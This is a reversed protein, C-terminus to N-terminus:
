FCNLWRGTILDLHASVVEAEGTLWQPTRQNVPNPTFRETQGCSLPHCEGKHKYHSVSPADYFFSVCMEQLVPTHRVFLIPLFTVDAAPDRMFSVGCGVCVCVWVCWLWFFIHDLTLPVTVSSPFSTGEKSQTEVGGVLGQRVSGDEFMECIM